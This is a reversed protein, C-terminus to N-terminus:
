GFIEEYRKWNVGNKGRWASLPLVIDSRPSGKLKREAEWRETRTSFGEYAPKILDNPLIGLEALTQLIGYRKYKDTNKLLKASAIRKELQGPTENGESKEIFELLDCLRKRDQQTVQPQEYKLIEELEIIWHLPTENWSHGLYYTYLQYTKDETEKVPLGCIECNPNGTLSHRQLHKLFVFSLLPQRGRVFEGTIGKYFLAVVFEKTLKPNIKLKLFREIAADHTFTEFNNPKLGMKELLLIDEGSINSPIKQEHRDLKENYFRNEFNYIKKLTEKINKMNDGSEKIDICKNYVIVKFYWVINAAVLLEM